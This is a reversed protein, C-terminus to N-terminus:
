RMLEDYRPCQDLSHAGLCLVCVHAFNCTGACGAQRNFAWCIKQPNQGETTSKLRNARRVKNFRNGENKGGAKGGNNRDGKKGKGKASDKNKGKGKGARYGGYSENSSRAWDAGTGWDTQQQKRKLPGRTGELALATVIYKTRLEVDTSAQKLAAALTSGQRNVLKIALKRLEHEYKLLNKWTTQAVISGVEDEVKLTYIDEGLLHDLLDSFTEKNLDSFMKRGPFKCRLVLWFNTMLRYTERLEEPNKPISGRVVTKRLTIKGSRFDVNLDNLNSDEKDRSVLEDLPEAKLEGEEIETLKSNIIAYAPYHKDLVEKGMQKEFTNRLELQQGHLLEKPRNQTRAEADADAQARGRRRATEWADILQATAVRGAGRPEVGLDEKVWERFKDEQSEINAFISVKTVHAEAVKTILEASLGKDELIFRLESDMNDLSPLPAAEM